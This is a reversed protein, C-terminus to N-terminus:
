RREAAAVAHPALVAKLGAAALAALRLARGPGANARLLSPVAVLHAQGAGHAACDFQGAFRAAPWLRRYQGGPGVARQRAFSCYCSPPPVNSIAQSLGLALLYHVGEGAQTLSQMAQQLAPLKTLLHVDVFMAMFVVLLSWDIQLLVRRALLLLAVAIALLAWAALKLELAAIFLLYLAVSLWLLSRQWNIPQQTQQQIVRPRFSLRDTAAPEAYYLGCAAVDAVYLASAQAARGWLLINQPNGIPTLM